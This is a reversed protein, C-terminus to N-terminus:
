ASKAIKKKICKEKGEIQKDTGEDNDNNDNNNSWTKAKLKFEM